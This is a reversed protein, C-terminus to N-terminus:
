KLSNQKLIAHIEKIITQHDSTLERKELSKLLELTAQSYKRNFEIDVFKLDGLNDKRDLLKILLAEDSMTALKRSLYATKGLKEIMQPDSTLEQVLDAIRKGVLNKIDSYVFTSDELVDHLFAAAILDQDKSFRLVAQAVRDPHVIYPKKEFKRVIGKHAKEALAYAKYVLNLDINHKKHLYSLECLAGALM